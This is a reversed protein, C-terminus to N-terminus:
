LSQGFQNITLYYCRQGWNSVQSEKILHLQAILVQSLVKPLNGTAMNIVALTAAIAILKDM